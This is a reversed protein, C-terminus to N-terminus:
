KFLKRHIYYFPSLPGLLKQIKEDNNLDNRNITHNIFTFLDAQNENINGLDQIDGNNQVNNSNTSM